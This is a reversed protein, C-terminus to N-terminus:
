PIEKPVLEKEGGDYEFTTKRTDSLEVKLCRIGGQNCNMHIDIDGTHRNEEVVKKLMNGITNTAEIVRM